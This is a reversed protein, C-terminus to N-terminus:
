ITEVQFGFGATTRPVQRILDTRHMTIGNYYPVSLGTLYNVLHVYTISIVHRLWTKSIHLNKYYPIIIDAHGMKSIINGISQAPHDNDGFVVMVYEFRAADLGKFYSFGMGMNKTNHLAVIKKDKIAMKDIVTGTKDSSCDDIIIIEYDKSYKPAITHITEITIGILKQENFAPVIFSLRRKPM